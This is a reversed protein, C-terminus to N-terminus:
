WRVGMLATLLKYPIMKWRFIRRTELAFDEPTIGAALSEEAFSTQSLRIFAEVDTHEFKRIVLDKM